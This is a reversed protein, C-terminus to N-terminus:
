SNILRWILIQTSLSVVFKRAILMCIDFSCIPLEFINIWEIQASNEVSVISLLDFWTERIHLKISLYLRFIGSFQKMENNITSKQLNIREDFFEQVQFTFSLVWTTLKISTQTAFLFAFSWEQHHSRRRHLGGRFVGFIDRM